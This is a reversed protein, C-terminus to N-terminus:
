TRSWPPWIAPKFAAKFVEGARTRVLVSLIAASDAMMQSVGHLVAGPDDVFELLNHCLIVDFFERSFLGAVQSANGEKLVIRESVGTEGAARRAIDLMAPSCDLLTVHIGLRAHRVAM